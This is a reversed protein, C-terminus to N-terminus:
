LKDVIETSMEGCLDTEMMRKIQQKTLDQSLLYYLKAVAAETTMDRGSVAGAAKLSSSTEYAGLIVTGSPCQSCVTIVAGSAFAKKIIPLLEDGGGPINGTGFTELVIGSLKETMIEEFLGFQIGPFVKLVGIPVESFPSFDLKAGPTKRKMLAPLNYRISIGADALHPYNPSDFAVLGDASMKMARNGRLLKGCFYLCVERVVGDAAILVSTILNDRGDSRIESLPIQSGTLVVPKDLGSLIFSLASATYAMTDTGHLVVFGEYKEYNEYIVSAIANWERVAMNSSDLLPSMEYLDWSPFDERSMDPILNMVEALFGPAPTYGQETKKMGVTGGTYIILVKKSKM